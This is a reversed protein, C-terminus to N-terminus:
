ISQQNSYLDSVLKANITPAVLRANLQERTLYPNKLDSNCYGFGPRSTDFIGKFMYPVNNSPTNTNMYPNINSSNYANQNNIDTIKEGNQQLFRRYEWNSNINNDKKIINNIKADSQWETYNRGDSMLPPLSYYTNNSATYKNRWSCNTSNKYCTLNSM